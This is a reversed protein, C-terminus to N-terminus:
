CSFVLQANKRTYRGLDHVAAVDFLTHRIGFMSRFRVTIALMKTLLIRNQQDIM